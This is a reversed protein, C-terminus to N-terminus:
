HLQNERVRIQKVTEQRRVEENVQSSQCKRTILMKINSFVRSRELSSGLTV